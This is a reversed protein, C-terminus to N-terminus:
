HGDSFTMLPGSTVPGGTAFARPALKIAPTLNARFVLGLIAGLVSVATAIVASPLHLGFAGAATAVTAMAGTIISVAVPRARIATYIAALATTITTVAATEVPTLPVLVGVIVAIGGNAAWAIAAPEYALLAQLRAWIGTPTTTTHTM